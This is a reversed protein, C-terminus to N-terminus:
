IWHGNLKWAKINVDIEYKEALEKIEQEHRLHIEKYGSWHSLFFKLDIETQNRERAVQAEREFKEESTM